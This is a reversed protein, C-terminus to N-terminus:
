AGCRSARTRSLSSRGTACSGTDVAVLLSGVVGAIVGAVSVMSLPKEQFVIPATPMRSTAGKGSAPEPEHITVEGASKTPITIPKKCKPCPGTLGAFKDSVTFRSSCGPCIVPIPM